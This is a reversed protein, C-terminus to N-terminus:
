YEDEVEKTVKLNLAPKLIGQQVAEEVDGHMWDNGHEWKSDPGVDELTVKSPGLPALVCSNEQAFSSSCIEGLGCVQWCFLHDQLHTKGSPLFWLPPYSDEGASRGGKTDM